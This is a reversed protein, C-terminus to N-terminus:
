IPVTDPQMTVSLIREMTRGDPNMTRPSKATLLSIPIMVMKNNVLGVTFATYGAMSGHVAGQALQMCLISDTANPRISRIMYSPDIFKVNCTEGKSKFYEEVKTQMFKGILPLKKNGSADIETSQGLLGEGAGEAVVMVGFKKAQVRRYLHPLCGNPGDLIIPAEPVLCVDVEGSALTAFAAIYGSSRGMLKVIGVGNPINCKAETVASELANQAAEVSTDFGFSRDLLAVDNDITKPICAVSIEKNRKLCETAIKQAGRHTGDGGIIYLQNIGREEVFYLIKELDFGGRSSGLITGGIHQLGMVTKVTLELPPTSPSYFGAYGGRIGWVKEAGYNQLLMGTLYHIVSNLGPCLGGCTVIAANVKSPDFHLSSRPGARLLALTEPSTNGNKGRVHDVIVCDQSNIIKRYHSHSFEGKIHAKVIESNPVQANTFRTGLNVIDQLIVKSLTYPVSCPIMDSYIEADEKAEKSVNGVMTAEQSTM